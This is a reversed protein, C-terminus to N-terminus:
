QSIKRVKTGGPTDEVSFGKKRIENRVRDAGAFDRKKRLSEREKVLLCVDGPVEEKRPVEELRLGLVRDIDIMFGYVKSADERSLKGGDREKNVMSMMSFLAALADSIGLDDDMSEEFAERAGNLISDTIPNDRARSEHGAMEQVFSRIKRVTNGASALSKETVNIKSRYYGSLLLYRIAMPDHGKGILDRLTFFNGLSKSMKKGNVVLHNNHLWYKVFDKGTSAESQAIENEHHPFILDVGGTHIDITEGLHRRSMASCEIHWGPRGKGLETEWFVDGDDKDWFKWLAFDNASEKDYEDQRVRAGAKLGRISTGSLRGYEPFKRISFYIGDDGRYAIGKKILAKTMEVMDGIHETALPYVDARKINLTEIDRFFAKTYRETYKSLSIGEKRSGRITKDDVDTINMVQKVRYGRWELYRRLIDAFVYARFNGIHAYDYVTPGCNYINVSGKRITRFVDKKKTLTNYFRLVM